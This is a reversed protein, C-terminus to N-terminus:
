KSIEDFVECNQVFFSVIIRAATNYSNSLKLEDLVWNVIRYYIEEQNSIVGALECYCIQFQSGIVKFKRGVDDLDSLKKRIYHYYSNVDAKITQSLLENDKIKEKLELPIKRFNALESYNKINYLNELILELEDNLNAKELVSNSKEKDLYVEKKKLLKIFTDTTPTCEYEDACNCCCCIKNHRDDYVTPEKGAISVFDAKKTKNLGEPFIKIIAYKYATKKNKNVKISTGCISCKQESEIVFELDSADIKSKVDINDKTIAYRLLKFLFTNYRKNSYDELFDEKTKEAITEDNKVVNVLKELYDNFTVTQLSPLLWNNVFSACRKKGVSDKLLYNKKETTLDRIGNFLNNNYPREVDIDALNEFFSLGYDFQDLSLDNRHEFSLNLYTSLRLM